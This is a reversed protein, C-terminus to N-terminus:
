RIDGIYYVARGALSLRATLIASSCKPTAGGPKQFDEGFSKRQYVFRIVTAVISVAM